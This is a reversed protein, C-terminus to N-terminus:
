LPINEGRERSALAEAALGDLKGAAADAALQEDWRREDLETFWDRFRQYDEEALQAVARQVDDVRVQSPQLM